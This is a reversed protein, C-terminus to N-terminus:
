RFPWPFMESECPLMKEAGMNPGSEVMMFPTRFGKEWFFKSCSCALFAEQLKIAFFPIRYVFSRTEEVGDM